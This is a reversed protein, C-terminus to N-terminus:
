KKRKNKREGKIQTREMKNTCEKLYIMQQQIIIKISVSKLM